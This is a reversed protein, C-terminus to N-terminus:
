IKNKSFKFFAAQLSRSSAETFSIFYGIKNYRHIQLSVSISVKLVEAPVGFAYIKLGFWKRLTKCFFDLFM